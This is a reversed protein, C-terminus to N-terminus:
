SSLILMFREAELLMRKWAIVSHYTFQRLWAKAKIYRCVSYRVLPLDAWGTLQLM